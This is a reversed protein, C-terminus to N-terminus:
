LSGGRYDTVVRGKGKFTLQVENDGNVKIRPDYNEGDVLQIEIKGDTVTFTDSTISRCIFKPSTLMFGSPIVITKTGNVYLEEKYTIVGTVFNFPKWLWPESSTQLNYKYPEAEPVVFDFEGLERARVFNKLYIRGRWYYEPDSDVIIKVVRGNIQNRILSIVSDWANRNRIGGMHFSLSRKKYTRKGAIKETVDILNDRYPISIYDTEMEPEGAYDTNGLAFGWDDLSHYEKGNEEVIIRIGNSLANM